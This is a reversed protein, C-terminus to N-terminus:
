TTCSDVFVGYAYWKQPTRPSGVVAFSDFARARAKMRARSMVAIGQLLPIDGQLLKFLHKLM